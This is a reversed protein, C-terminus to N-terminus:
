HFCDFNSLARGGLGRKEAVRVAHALIERPSPPDRLAIDRVEAIRCRSGRGRCISLRTPRPAFFSLRRGRPSRRLGRPAHAQWSREYVAATEEGAMISVIARADVFM